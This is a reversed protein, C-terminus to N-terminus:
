MHMKLQTPATGRVRMNNLAWGYCATKTWPDVTIPRLDQNKLTVGSVAIILLQILRLDWFDLPGLLMPWNWSARKLINYTFRETPHNWNIGSICLLQSLTSNSLVSTLALEKWIRVRCSAIQGQTPSEVKGSNLGKAAAIETSECCLHTLHLSICLIPESCPEPIYM